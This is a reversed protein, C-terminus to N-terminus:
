LGARATRAARRAHRLPEPTRRSGTVALIVAIATDLQTRWAPHVVLPTTGRRTRLRCGVVEGDIRMLATAGREEGPLPGDALLPQRTVGITPLSLKAGLQLALGARRPHDLGTANVLLVDPRGPLRRVAEELLPGERLALLGAAYDSACEGAVTGIASLSGDVILAAAAWCPDGAAGKGERGKPHCIWCGAVARLGDDITWPPQAMAAVQRQLRILEDPTEPWIGVDMLHSCAM